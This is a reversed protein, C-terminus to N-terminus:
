RSVRDIYTQAEASDQPDCTCGWMMWHNREQQTLEEGRERKEDLECSRCKQSEM